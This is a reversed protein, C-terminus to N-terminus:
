TVEITYSGTDTFEVAYKRTGDADITHYFQNTADMPTDDIGAKFVVDDSLPSAAVNIEDGAVGTV